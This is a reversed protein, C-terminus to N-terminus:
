WSGPQEGISDLKDYKEKISIRKSDVPERNIFEDALKNDPKVKKLDLMSTKVTKLLLGNIYKNSKYYHELIGLRNRRSSTENPFDEQKFFQADPTAKTDGERRLRPILKIKISGNEGYAYVLATDGKYLGRKIKVFTCLEIDPKDIQGMEIIKKVEHLQVPRVRKTIVGFVNQILEEVYFGKLSEILM